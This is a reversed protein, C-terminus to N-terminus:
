CLCLQPVTSRWAAHKTFDTWTNTGRDANHYPSGMEKSFWELDGTLGWCLGCLSQNSLPRGALKAEQSGAPCEETAWNKKPHTGAM